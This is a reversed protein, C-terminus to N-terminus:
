SRIMRLFSFDLHLSVLLGGETCFFFLFGVISPRAESRDSGIRMFKSSKNTSDCHLVLSFFLCFNLQSPLGLTVDCLFNILLDFFSCFINSWHQESPLGASSCLLLQSTVILEVDLSTLAHPSTTFRLKTVDDTNFTDFTEASLPTPRKLSLILALQSPSLITVKEHFAWVLLKDTLFM